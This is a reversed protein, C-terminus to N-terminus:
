AATFTPKDCNGIALVDRVRLGIRGPSLRRILHRHHKRISDRSLGALAAAEDISIMRDLEFAPPVKLPAKVQKPM